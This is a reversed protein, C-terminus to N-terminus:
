FQIHAFDEGMLFVGPDAEVFRYEILCADRIKNAITEGVVRHGLHGRPQEERGKTDQIILVVLLGDQRQTFNVVGLGRLAGVPGAGLAVGFDGAIEIGAPLAAGQLRLRNRQILEGETNAKASPGVVM